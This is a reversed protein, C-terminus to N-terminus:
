EKVPITRNDILELYYQKCQEIVRNLLRDHLLTMQEDTLLSTTFLFLSKLAELEIMDKSQEIDGNNYKLGISKYFAEKDEGKDKDNTILYDLGIMWEGIISGSLYGDLVLSKVHSSLTNIHQCDIIDDAIQLVMYEKYKDPLKPESQIYKHFSKLTMQWIIGIPLKKSSKERTITALSDVFAMFGELAVKWRSISNMYIKMIEKYDVVVEMDATYKTDLIMGIIDFYTEIIKIIDPSTMIKDIKNNVVKILLETILSGNGASISDNKSDVLVYMMELWPIMQHDMGYIFHMGILRQLPLLKNLEKSYGVVIDNLNNTNVGFERKLMLDHDLAYKYITIVKAAIKSSHDNSGPQKDINYVSYLLLELYYTLAEQNQNELEINLLERVNSTCFMSTINRDQASNNGMDMILIIWYKLLQVFVDNDATYGVIKCIVKNYFEYVLPIWENCNDNRIGLIGKGAILEGIFKLLNEICVIQVDVCDAQWTSKILEDNVVGLAPPVTFDNSFVGELLQALINIYESFTSASFVSEFQRSFIKITTQISGVCTAKHKILSQRCLSELIKFKCMSLSASADVATDTTGTLRNLHDMLNWYWTTAMYAINSQKNSAFREIVQLWKLILNTTTLNDLYENDVMSAFEFLLTSPDLVSTTSIIFSFLKSDTIKILQNFLTIFHNQINMPNESLVKKYGDIYADIIESNHNEVNYCEFLFLHTYVTFVSQFVDLDTMLAMNESSLKILKNINGNPKRYEILLYAILLDTSLTVFLTDFQAIVTDLYNPHIYLAFLANTLLRIISSSSTFLLSPKIDLNFSKSHNIADMYIQSVPQNYQSNIISELHNNSSIVTAINDNPSNLASNYPSNITSTPRSLVSSPRTNTPICACINSSTLLILKYINEHNPVVAHILLLAMSLNILDGTNAITNPFIDMILADSNTISKVKFLYEYYMKIIDTYLPCQNNNITLLSKYYELYDSYVPLLMASNFSEPLKDLIRISITIMYHMPLEPVNNDALHDIYLQKSPILSFQDHGYNSVFANILKFCLSCCSGVVNLTFSESILDYLSAILPTNCVLKYIAELSLSALIVSSDLSITKFLMSLLLESETKLTDHFSTILQVVLLLTRIAIPYPCMEKVSDGFLQIITKSFTALLKTFHLNHLKVSCNTFILKTIELGLSRPIPTLYKLNYEVNGVIYMVDELVDYATNDPCKEVFNAVIQRYTAWASSTVLSDIKMSVPINWSEDSPHKFSANLNIQLLKHMLVCIQHMAAPSLELAYLDSCPLAVQVLKLQMEQLLNAQSSFFGGVDARLCNHLWIICEEALAVEILKYSIMRLLITLALINTKPQNLQFTKQLVAKASSLNKQEQRLEYVCQEAAEKIDLLRRKKAENSLSALDQQLLTSSALSM